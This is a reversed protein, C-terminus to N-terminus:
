VADRLRSQAQQRNSARIAFFLSPLYGLWLTVTSGWYAGKWFESLSLMAYMGVIVWGTLALAFVAWYGAQRIIYAREHPGSRRVCRLASVEGNAAHEGFRHRFGGPEEGFAADGLFPRGDEQLEDGLDSCAESQHDRLLNRRLGQGEDAREATRRHVVREDIMELIDGTTM